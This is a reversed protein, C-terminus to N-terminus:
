GRFIFSIPNPNQEGLIFALQNLLNKALLSCFISFTNQVIEDSLQLVVLILMLICFGLSIFCLTHRTARTVLIHNRNHFKVGWAIQLISDWNWKAPSATSTTAEEGSTPGRLLPCTSPMHCICCLARRLWTAVSLSKNAQLWLTTTLSKCCPTNLHSLLFSNWWIKKLEFSHSSSSHHIFTKKEEANHLFASLGFTISFTKQVVCLPSLFWYNTWGLNTYRCGM